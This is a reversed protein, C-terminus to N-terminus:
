DWIGELSEHSVAKLTRFRLAKVAADSLWAIFPLPDSISFDDYLAARTPPFCFSRLFRLRANSERLHSLFAGLEGGLWRTVVGTRFGAVPEVDGEKAMRYILYPFDVGSAIAQVLSGWLRPNLDILYPTGSSREVVFDAQCVGHWTLSELLRQLHAEAIPSRISIRMTAQGGTAPYDRLQQYTVTARPRGRNCLMAVCHTEGQIREQVFFRDWPLGACFQADLMTELAAPTDVQQIGWAGGGQKPKVLVPYRLDSARIQGTRLEDISCSVPVSIGLAQATQAWRDKNHALLIDQYTPLVTAVCDSFRALHKAVLFTEESVPILVDVRLRRIEELLRGIFGEPDTFPSPHVFHEKSFRSAFSMARPISDATYVRIGKQGLSRVVNYAVRNRAHTVIASM